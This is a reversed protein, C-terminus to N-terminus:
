RALRVLNTAARRQNEFEEQLERAHKKLHTSHAHLSEIFDDMIVCRGEAANDALQLVIPAAILLYQEHLAEMAIVLQYVMPEYQDYLENIQSAKTTSVPVVEPHVVLHGSM